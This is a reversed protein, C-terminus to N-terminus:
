LSAESVDDEDEEEEEEEDFDDGDSDDDNAIDEDDSGPITYKVRKQDRTERQPRTREEEVIEIENEDDNADMQFTNKATSSDEEEAKPEIKAEVFSEMGGQLEESSGVCSVWHNPNGAGHHTLSSIKEKPVEILNDPIGNAIIEKGNEDKTLFSVESFLVISDYYDKCTINNNACHLFLYRGKSHVTRGQLKMIPGEPFTVYLKPSATEWDEVEGIRGGSRGSIKGPFLCLKRGKRVNGKRVIDCGDFQKQHRL